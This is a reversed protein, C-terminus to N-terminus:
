GKRVEENDQIFVASCMLEGILRNILAYTLLGLGAVALFPQLPAFYQLAGSYGLAVLAIKNCVPCGVALFSLFAGAGGVKASKEEEVGPNNKVYTAVIL